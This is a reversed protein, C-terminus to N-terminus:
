SMWLDTSRIDVGDRSTLKKRPKWDGGKKKRRKRARESGKERRRETEILREWDDPHPSNAVGKTIGPWSITPFTVLTPFFHTDSLPLALSFDEKVSTRIMGKSKQRKRSRKTLTESNLTPSLAPTPAWPSYLRSARCGSDAREHQSKSMGEWRERRTSGLLQIRHLNGGRCSQRSNTETIKRERGQNGSILWQVERKV